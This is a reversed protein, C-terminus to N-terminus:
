SVCNPGCINTLGIIEIIEIIEDGDEDDDDDDHIYVDADDEDGYRSIVHSWDM